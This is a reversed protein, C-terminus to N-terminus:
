LSANFAAYGGTPDYGELNGLFTNTPAKQSTWESTSRLARIDRLGTEMEEPSPVFQDIFDNNSPANLVMPGEYSSYGSRGGDDLYRGLLKEILMYHDLLQLKLKTIRVDIYVYFIFFFVLMWLLTSCDNGLLM